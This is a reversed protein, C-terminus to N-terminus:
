RHAAEVVYIQESTMVILQRNNLLTECINSCRLVHHERCAVLSARMQSVRRKPHKIFYLYIYAVTIVYNTVNMTSMSQLEAQYRISVINPQPIQHINGFLVVRASYAHGPQNSTIACITFICIYNRHFYGSPM